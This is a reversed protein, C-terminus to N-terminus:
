KNGPIVTVKPIEVVNNNVSNSELPIGANLDDRSRDNKNDNSVKPKGKRAQNIRKIGESDDVINEAPISCGPTDLVLRDSTNVSILLQTGYINILPLLAAHVTKQTLVINSSIERPQISIRINDVPINLISDTLNYVKM